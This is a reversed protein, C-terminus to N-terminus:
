RRNIIATIFKHVKNKPPVNDMRRHPLFNVRFTKVRLLTKYFLDRATTLMLGTNGSPKNEFWFDWNPYIKSPIAISFNPIPIKHGNPRNKPWKTYNTTIQYIKGRTPIKSWSFDPLGANFLCLGHQTWIEM